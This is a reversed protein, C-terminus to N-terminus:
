QKRAKMTEALVALDDPDDSLQAENTEMKMQLTELEIAVSRLYKGTNKCLGFTDIECPLPIHGEHEITYEFVICGMWYAVVLVTILMYIDSILRFIGCMKRPLPPSNAKTVYRIIKCKLINIKVQSVKM